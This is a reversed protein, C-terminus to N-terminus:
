YVFPPFCPVLRKKCAEVQNDPRIRAKVTGNRAM